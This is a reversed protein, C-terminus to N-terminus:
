PAVAGNRPRRGFLRVYLERRDSQRMGGRVGIVKSPTSSQEMDRALCWALVPCRGCYALAELEAESPVAAGTTMEWPEPFFLTPDAGVCAAAGSREQRAAPAPALDEYEWLRDLWDSTPASM